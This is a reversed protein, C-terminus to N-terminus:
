YLNEEILKCVNETNNENYTEIYKNRFSILETYDYKDDEINKIIEKIDKNTYSKLEEVVDVNLGRTESYEDIDYVYLFLPKQLISAEIASASYDSIIYDAFTMLDYTSFNGNAIYRDDVKTNDLPHLKIILNYKTSDVSQIVDILNVKKNKRFTPIYLITKKSAFQPNLKLIKENKNNNIIYDIRPMGIVKIKEIPTNFGESFFKATVNSACTVYDYNKHMKM